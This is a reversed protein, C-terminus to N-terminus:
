PKGDRGLVVGPVIERKPTKTSWIKICGFDLGIEHREKKKVNM